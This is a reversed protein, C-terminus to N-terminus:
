KCIPRIKTHGNLWPNRSYLTSLCAISGLSSMSLYVRFFLSNNSLRSPTTARRTLGPTTMSIYRLSAPSSPQSLPRARSSMMASPGEHRIVEKFAETSEELNFPDVTVIKEIGSARIMDEIKIVNVPKQVANLGTSPSSYAQRADPSTSAWLSTSATASKSSEM